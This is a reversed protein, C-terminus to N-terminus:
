DFDFHLLRWNTMVLSASRMFYDMRFYMQANFTTTFAFSITTTSKRLPIICSLTQIYTHFTHRSIHKHQHRIDFQKLHM